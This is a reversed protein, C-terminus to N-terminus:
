EIRVNIIVRRIPVRVRVRPMDAPIDIKIKRRIHAKAGALRQQQHIKPQCIRDLEVREARLVIHRRVHLDEASIASVQAIAAPRHLDFPRVRRLTGAM